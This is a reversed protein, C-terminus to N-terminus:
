ASSSREGSSVLARGEKIATEFIDRAVTRLVLVWAAPGVLVELALATVPRATM